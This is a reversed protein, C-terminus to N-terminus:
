KIIRNLETIASTLNRQMEQVQDNSYTVGAFQCADAATLIEEVLSKLNDPVNESRMIDLCDSTVLTKAELPKKALHCLSEQIAFRAAKLFGAADGAKSAANAAQLAQRVKRSGSHRRALHVNNELRKRRFQWAAAAALILAALGNLTWFRSEQWLVTHSPVLIGPEPRIPLIKEPIRKTQEGQEGLSFLIPSSDAPKNSPKVEVPRAEIITTQYTTKEPDFTSYSIAPIETISTSQPILIYEFSKRGAYGRNDSPEFTIKPPYIRWNEWEPLAPPSIREFNGQGEMTITLTFPEGVMLDSTSYDAKVEFQGIADSFSDPKDKTPLPLIDTVLPDSFIAFAETRTQSMMFVSPFRRDPSNIQVALDQSFRLEAPGAKIPTLLIDWVLASYARGNYQVNAREPNNDFPSHQFADGESAPRSVNTLNLDRSVLMNYRAPIAQGVYYPPDPLQVVILARSKTEEDMPVAQVEVDPIRINEGGITISRGPITFNGTRTPRFQWSLETEVSARGNIIQQYTSTNPTDSFDLGEVRPTNLKPISSTNLFRISYSSSEGVMIVSPKAEARVLVTQASVAGPLSALLTTLFIFTHFISVVRM